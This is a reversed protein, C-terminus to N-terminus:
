MIVCFKPWFSNTEVKRRELLSGEEELGGEEQVGKFDASPESGEEKLNGEAQVGKFDKPESDEEKLNGEAQVGKFDASPESGEDELNGEAQVGKFDASPEMTTKGALADEEVADELSQYDKMTRSPGGVPIRFTPVLGDEEGETIPTIWSPLVGDEGMTYDAPDDGWPRVIVKATSTQAAASRQSITSTQVTPTAPLNATPPSTMGTSLNNAVNVDQNTNPIAAAQAM